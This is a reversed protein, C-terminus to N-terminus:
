EAYRRAEARHATNALTHLLRVHHLEYDRKKIPDNERKAQLRVIQALLDRAKDVLQKEPSDDMKGGSDTVSLVRMVEKEAKNLLGKQRAMYALVIVTHDQQLHPSVETNPYDLEIHTHPNELGQLDPDCKALTLLKETSIQVKLKPGGENFFDRVLNDVREDIAEDWLHSNRTMTRKMDAKPRANPMAATKIPWTRAWAIYDKVQYGFHLLLYRARVVEEVTYFLTTYGSRAM